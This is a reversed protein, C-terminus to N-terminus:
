VSGAACVCLVRLVFVFVACLVCLGCRHLGLRHCVRGAPAPGGASGRGQPHQPVARLLHPIHLLPLGSSPQHNITSPQHHHNSPSSLPLPTWPLPPPDAHQHPTLVLEAHCASCIFAQHAVLRLWLLRLRVWGGASGARQQSGRCVAARCRPRPYLRAPQQPAHPLHPLLLLCHHWWVPWRHRTAATPQTTATPQRRCLMATPPLPCCPLPLVKPPLSPLRRGSSV